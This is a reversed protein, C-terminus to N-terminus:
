KTISWNPNHTILARFLSIYIVKSVYNALWYLSRSGRTDYVTPINVLKNDTCLITYGQSVSVAVYDKSRCSSARSFTVTITVPEKLLSFDLTGTAKFENSTIPVDEFAKLVLTLLANRM